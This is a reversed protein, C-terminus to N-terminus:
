TIRETLNFAANNEFVSNSIEIRGGGSGLAGGQVAFNDSLRCDELRILAEEDAVDIGVAGGVGAFDAGTM